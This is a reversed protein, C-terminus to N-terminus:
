LTLKAEVVDPEDPMRSVVFGLHKIFGLMPANDALVQGIVERMGRARGWEIIARMLASGLGLGKAAPEVVVAFEGTLGDTDDRVLRAVGMTAGTTENKAIFAMERTYDVDTLRTIQEVPLSKMPSFFRYRMDETTLRAIMAIHADADELRIPRITFKEGKAEHSAVLDAPYPSILLEPRTKGPPRLVIRASGAVVGTENAFVPDIDLLKIEPTDLILQSVRVLIAAIAEEDAAEQGRHAVLMPAV